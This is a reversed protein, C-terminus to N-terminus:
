FRGIENKQQKLAKRQLSKAYRKMTVFKNSQLFQQTSIEKHIYYATKGM